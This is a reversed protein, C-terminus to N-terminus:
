YLAKTQVSRLRPPQAADPIYFQFRHLSMGVHVCFGSGGLSRSKGVRQATAVVAVADFLAAAISHLIMKRNEKRFLPDLPFFEKSKEFSFLKEGKRRGM